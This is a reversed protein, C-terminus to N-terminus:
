ELPQRNEPEEEEVDVGHLKAWERETDESFTSIYRSAVQSGRVWGYCDELHAQNMARSAAWSASSKRFNTPTAPKGFGARDALRKLMQNKFSRSVEKSSSLKTWVPADPNEGDPHSNLWREVYPTSPILTVTRRGQKGQVTVQLSHRGESFAGVTLNAYEGGRPGADFQLAVAAADRENSAAEIMPKVDDEWGLMKAPEPTPDYTSSTTSSVWALPRPIGQDNLEGGDPVYGNTDALVKGFQRLAVRYDRNTEANEYKGHIWNLIEKAHEESEVAPRLPGAKEAVLLCHRLLKEYLHDSYESRWLQLEHSFARLAERDGGALEDSEDIRDRLKELVGNM